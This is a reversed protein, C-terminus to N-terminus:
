IVYLKDLYEEFRKRKIIKHSGKAIVFDCDPQEMLERIKNEGINSYVAAEEVTLNLKHWIPVYRDRQLEM